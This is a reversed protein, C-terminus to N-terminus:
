GAGSAIENGCGSRAPQDRYALRSEIASMNKPASLADDGGVSVIKKIAFWTQWVDIMM